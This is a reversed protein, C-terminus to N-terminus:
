LRLSFLRPLIHHHCQCHCPSPLHEHFTDHAFGEHHRLWGGLGVMEWGRSGKTGELDEDFGFGEASGKAARQMSLYEHTHSGFRVVLAGFM